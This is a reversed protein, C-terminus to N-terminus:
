YRRLYGEIYRKVEEKSRYIGFHGECLIDAELSLLKEMSSKWDHINSGFSADFPGHIDQGFLIRKGEIDCYVSISGPTHGPTHLCNFDVDGFRLKALEESIVHDISVPSYEVGYWQAATPTIDRGEIADADKKHAIIECDFKEKLEKASGIHDIHCHTLILAQLGEPEFGIKRMNEILRDFSQGAGCDIMVSKGKGVDFLYVCCDSPNSISSGGIQYVREWIKKPKPMPQSITKRQILQQAPPETVRLHAIKLLFVLILLM